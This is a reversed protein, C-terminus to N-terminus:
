VASAPPSLRPGGNVTRSGASAEPRWDRLNCPVTSLVVKVGAEQARRVLRELGQRFQAVIAEKEPPSYIRTQDRRVVQDMPTASSPQQERLWRNMLTLGSYLRSYSLAYELRTRTASRRKLSEFFAPEIFENHGSYILFIDPRYALLEDAVLNLRHMAYSIGAANVAEVHRELHSAALAEGVISTFAVDAGWPFGYASSGGLCFIRLGGAPKDALFSQDNFTTEVVARRTRYVTGEREFVSVLGSFGRFPDERAILKPVGAVWLFVELLLYVLGCTLAAFLWKKWFAIRRAGM